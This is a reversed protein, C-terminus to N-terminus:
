LSMLVAGRRPHDAVRRGVGVAEAIWRGRECCAPGGGTRHVYQQALARATRVRGPYRHGRSKTYARVATTAAPRHEWREARSWGLVAVAFPVRLGGIEIPDPQPFIDFDRDSLARVALLPVQRRQTPIRRPAGGGPARGM